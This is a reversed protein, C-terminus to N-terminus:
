CWQAIGRMVMYMCVSGPPTPPAVEAERAAVCRSVRSAGHFIHLDSGCIACCRMRVIVDGPDRVKPDEIDTYRVDHPGHFMIGKM